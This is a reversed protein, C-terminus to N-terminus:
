MKGSVLQLVLFVMTFTSSLCTTLPICKLNFLVFYWSYEFLCGFFMFIGGEEEKQETWGDASETIGM